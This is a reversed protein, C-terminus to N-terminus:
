LGMESRFMHEIRQLLRNGLGEAQRRMPKTLFKSSTPPEHRAPREHVFLAYGAAPGGYAIDISTGWGARKPPHIFGSGKLYGDRVPVLEQSLLFVESAEEHLAKGMYDNVHRGSGDLLRLLRDLGEVDMHVNAAM